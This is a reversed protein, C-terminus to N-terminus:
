KPVGIDTLPFVRFVVKGVIYHTNILGVESRRSDKSNNRNDGMVFICGDEVTLPFVVDGERHTLEKIYPEDLVQGDVTVEGTEFDIDVTQGEMAIIRKVLPEKSGPQNVVVIDGNQPTYGLNFLIVRDGNHLTNEMSTGSVGVIKFLFTFILVVVVVASVIAEVWELLNTKGDAPREEEIRKGNHKGM